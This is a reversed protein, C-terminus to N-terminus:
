RDSVPRETGASFILDDVDERPAPAPAPAPSDPTHEPM